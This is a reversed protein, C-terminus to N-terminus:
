NLVCEAEVYLEKWGTPNNTEGFDVVTHTKEDLVGVFNRNGFSFTAKPHEPMLIFRAAPSQPGLSVKMFVVQVPKNALAYRNSNTESLQAPTVESAKNSLLSSQLGQYAKCLADAQKKTFVGVPYEACTVLAASANTESKYTEVGVILVGLVSLGVILPRWM